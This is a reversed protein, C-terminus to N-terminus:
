KDGLSANKLAETLMAEDLRHGFWDALTTEDERIVYHKKPKKYDQKDEYIETLEDYSLKSLAQRNWSWEPNWQNGTFNAWGKEIMLEAYDNYGLGRGIIADIIFSKPVQTIGMASTKVIKM